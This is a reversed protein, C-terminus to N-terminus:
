PRELAEWHEFGREMQLRGELLLRFATRIGGEPGVTIVQGKMRERVVM